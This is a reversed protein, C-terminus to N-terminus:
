GCTWPFALVNLHKPCQVIHGQGGDGFMYPLHDDSGIQFVVQDMRTKCKPCKPYDVTINAWGPWGALKEGQACRGLKCYQEITAAAKFKPKKCTVTDTEDEFKLGLEEMEALSPYDDIEKWGSIQQSAFPKTFLRGRNYLGDDFVPAKVDAGPGEAKVIRLLQCKSFPKAGAEGNICEDAVCIFAQLLGSGYRGRLQKPLRDLDLQAFFRMPGKCQGCKPWAEKEGLWPVGGLRSAGAAGKGAKVVPTWASRRHAEYWPLLPQFKAALKVAM